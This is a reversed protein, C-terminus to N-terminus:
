IGTFGMYIGHLMGYLDWTFGMYMGYLNWIFGMYCGMWGRYKWGSERDSRLDGVASCRSKVATSLAGEGRQESGGDEALFVQATGATSDVDTLMAPSPDFVM